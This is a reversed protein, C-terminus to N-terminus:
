GTVTEGAFISNRRKEYSKDKRSKATLSSAQKDIGQKVLMFLMGGGRKSRKGLPPNLTEPWREIPVTRKIKYKLYAYVM